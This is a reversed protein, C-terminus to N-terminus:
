MNETRVTNKNQTKHVSDTDNETREGYIYITREPTVNASPSYGFQKKYARYFTSYDSFGCKTYVETPKAGFSIERQAMALRKSSIYKKPTINLHKIFLHHLHSKTIFLERCIEDLGSLELLHGDIYTIAECVLANTQTYLDGEVTSAALKVNVCIEQLLNVLMMRVLDGDLRDLYYDIRKFLNIISDNSDFNIVRLGVPLSQLFPFGVLAEDFIVDYREYNHDSEFCVEHIALPPIIVLDNKKLRYHWGDIIFDVDGEKLFLLEPFNHTHASYGVRRHDAMLTHDYKLREDQYRYLIKTEM